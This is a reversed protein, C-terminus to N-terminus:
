ERTYVTEAQAKESREQVRKRRGHLMSSQIGSGQSAWGRWKSTRWRSNTGRNIWDKMQRLRIEGEWVHQNKMQTKPLRHSEEWVPEERLENMDDPNSGDHAAKLEKCEEIALDWSQNPAEPAHGNALLM